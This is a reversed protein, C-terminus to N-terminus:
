EPKRFRVAFQDTKGRIEPSFVLPTRDDEPKALFDSEADFVFGAEEAMRVVIAKDIRHLENGSTEPAGDIASHDIVVFAGGPKVIRFIEAYSTAPDGLSSGDEQIYYLEHPGQVWTVLDISGDEADFADFISLSQRVNALRNDAIRKTLEEGFFGLFSEPNQMVVSGEPGVALSYLETFYGGGAEIEFISMGSAVQMFALTEVPKRGEDKVSDDPWRDPNNVAAAAATDYDVTSAEVAETEVATTETNECAAAFFLASSGLLFKMLRNQM